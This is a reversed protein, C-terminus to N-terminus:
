VVANRVYRQSPPRTNGTTVFCKGAKNEVSLAEDVEDKSDPLQVLPTKDGDKDSKFLSSFKSLPDM